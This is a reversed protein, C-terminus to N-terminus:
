ETPLDIGILSGKDSNTVYPLKGDWKDITKYKIINEDISKSITENAEAEADALLKLRKAEAEAAIVKQKAEAEAIVIQQEQETKTKILNQEAVQKQEIATIYEQSFDWNIINIDSVFIGNENLKKNIEDILQSSVEARSSVLENATYKATIAKLVENAVPAVIVGEYDSGINKYIHYSKDQAIRYNVALTVTITQLDKSFSETAVELKVIRNDIMIVQQAFPLKFHLGEQFVTDSVSGLTVVVGTHGAPVVVFCGTIISILIILVLVTVIIKGFAVTGDSKKFM